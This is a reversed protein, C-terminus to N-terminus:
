FKQSSYINSFMCFMSLLSQDNSGVCCEMWGKGVGLEEM